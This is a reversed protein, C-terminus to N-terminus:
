KPLTSIAGTSIQAWARRALEEPVACSIQDIPTTGNLLQQAFQFVGSPTDILVFCSPVTQPGPDGAAQQASRIEFARGPVDALVIPAPGVSVVSPDDSTTTKAFDDVEKKSWKFQSMAIRDADYGPKGEYEAVMECFSYKNKAEQTLDWNRWKGESRDRQSGFYIPKVVKGPLLDAFQVRSMLDCMNLYKVKAAAATSKPAITKPATTTRRTKTKSKARTTAHAPTVASAVMLICVSALLFRSTRV